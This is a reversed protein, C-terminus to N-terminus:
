AVPFNTHAFGGYHKKAANDYTLAADIEKAFAGLYTTKDNLRIQAVWKRTKKEVYVGKYKSSYGPRPRMNFRNQQNSCLRLNSRRNDLGDGNIHDVQEGRKANMIIRHMYFHISKQNEPNYTSSCAYSRPHHNSAYWRFNSVKEFDVDDILTIKGYKLPIEKM